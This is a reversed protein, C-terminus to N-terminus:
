RQRFHQLLNVVSALLRLGAARSAAMRRSRARRLPSGGGRVAREASEVIRRSWIFIRSAAGGTMLPPLPSAAATTSATANHTLESKGMMDAAPLLGSADELMGAGSPLHLSDGCAKRSSEAAGGRDVAAAAITGCWFLVTRSLM